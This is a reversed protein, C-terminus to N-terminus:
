KCIKWKNYYKKVSIDSKSIINFVKPDFELLNLGELSKLRSLAVYCQSKEWIRSDLVISAQSLTQGQSRHITIAYSLLLPYQEMSMKNKKDDIKDWVHKEIIHRINNFMVVPKNEYFEVVTGVMGNVLGRMRDNILYIVPCGIKLVLEDELPSLKQIINKLDIKNYIAKFTYGTHSNEKLKKNNINRAMDRLPVLIPFKEIKLVKKSNRKALAKIMNPKLMQNKRICNLIRILNNDSSRYSTKLQITHDFTDEWINNITNFCFMGNVPPLQYFDGVILLRIGGFPKMSNRIHKGIMDLFIFLKSDLLSIEDIILVQTKKWRKVHYMKDLVRKLIIEYTDTDDVIDVGSWSHITMSDNGLLKSAIGTTATIGMNINMRKCYDIYKQIIYTKGSGPPGTLFINNNKIYNLIEHENMNDNNYEIYKNSLTM